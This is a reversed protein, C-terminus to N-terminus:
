WMLLKVVIMEFIRDFGGIIVVMVLVLFLVVGTSGKLEPWTPWAVKKLEVKVEKLFKSIKDLMPM